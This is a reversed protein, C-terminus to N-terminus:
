ITSTFCHLTAKLASRILYVESAYVMHEGCLLEGVKPIMRCFRKKKPLYYACHGSSTDKTDDM